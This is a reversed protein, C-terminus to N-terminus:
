KKRILKLLLRRRSVVPKIHKWKMRKMVAEALLFDMRSDIIISREPPMLYPCSIRGKFSGQNLLVDRRVAYIAENRLYVPPLLKKPMNEVEEEVYDILRDHVIKKMRMPHCIGVKTVSIVSDAGTDILKRLARDIDATTRLPTTPPLVAVYDYKRGERQEMELVAHKVVDTLLSLDDALEKPRVVVDAGYNRAVEIVEEDESSVVVRTLLKSERAPVITYALLPRGLLKKINLKPITRSAGRAPIVGLIRYRKM